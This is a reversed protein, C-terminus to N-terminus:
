QNTKPITMAKLVGLVPASKLSAIMSGFENFVDNVVERAIRDSPAEFGFEFDWEGICEILLNILPHKQVFERVRRQTAANVFERMSVFILYRSMGFSEVRIASYYGTIVGEARLNKIRREATSYPIGTARSCERVSSYFTNGLHYIIKEDTEDAVYIEAEDCAATTLPSISIINSPNLYLRPHMSRRLHTCLSKRVLSLGPYSPLDALISQIAGMSRTLLTATFQFEGGLEALWTVNPNKIFTDLFQGRENAEGSLSFFM